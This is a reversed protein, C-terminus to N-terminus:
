NSQIEFGIILMDDNQVIDKKWKEINTNLIQKQEELPSSSIDLLLQKFRKTLFKTNKEGGFQDVYGDSFLYIKDYNQLQIENDAFPKEKIYIGIPNRTAKIEILENNRIIYLPNYAGAFQLLNTQTDIICLAIDMGDKTGSDPDTQNLSIKVQTRLEELIQAATKVEKKNVIENLFAIGLMSVFAGPVGHGTCDAAVIIIKKDIKKMWYFDGSVIDRPKFLIFYRYPFLNLFDKDPLMATQIRSAYNISATINKNKIEITNFTKQITQKQEDLLENKTQLEDVYRIIRDEYKANINTLFILGFMIIAIPFLVFMNILYYSSIDLNVQFLGADILNDFPDMLFICALTFLVTAFMLWKHKKDIFIFPLTLTSILLLRPFIYAIIPVNNNEDIKSIASFLFIFFPTLTSLLVANLKHYGFKNLVPVTLIIFISLFSTVPLSIYFFFMFIHLVFLIFFFIVSLQNSLVVKKQFSLTMDPKVGLNSLNHWKNLFWKM